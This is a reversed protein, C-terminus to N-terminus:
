FRLVAAAGGYQELADREHRVALLEASQQVSLEIM